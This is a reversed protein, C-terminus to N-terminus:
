RFALTQHQEREAERIYAGFVFLLPVTKKKKKLIEALAKSVKHSV